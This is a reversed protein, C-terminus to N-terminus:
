TRLQLSKKLCNLVENSSRMKMAADAILDCDKKTYRSIIERTKTVSAPSVSFEDLGFSIFLPILLEDAAAEGCMCVPIKEENACKITYKILRLVAPSYTSCLESVSSEGRDSATTYQTLDNTGISFFDAERALIDSETAAAPTEIMVGTKISKNYSIGESDLEDMIEKIIRKSETLEDFSTILPLMIRLDGFASARLLARLQTKFLKQRKLCLRIGRLGLFPNDEKKLNLYPIDKDGGVDLTRLVLPKGGLSNLTSKYISFQEEETPPKQKQLFLFETRFLGVGEGGSNLVLKIDDPTGINCLLEFETGDASRTPLNKYGALRNKENEFDTKLKNYKQLENEKPNIIVTGASGDAIITDGNKVSSLVNKISLVAPIGLSRALIASHSTKGGTETVIAAVNEKNMSATMSPTIDYSVIVTKPPLTALDTDNAGILIKLVGNKIDRIDDARQMILDDGSALFMDSVKNCATELAKEACSGNKINQKIENTLFPDTLMIAHGALIEAEDDGATARLKESIEFTKKSYESAAKEFRSLELDPDTNDPEIYELSNARVVVAKGIGIGPSANIGSLM